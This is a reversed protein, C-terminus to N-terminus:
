RSSDGLPLSSLRDSVGSCTARPSIPTTSSSSSSSSSTPTSSSSVGYRPRPTHTCTHAHQRYDTQRDTCLGASQIFYFYFFFSFRVLALSGGDRARKM